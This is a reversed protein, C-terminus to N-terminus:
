QNLHTYRQSADKKDSEKIVSSVSNPMKRVDMSGHLDELHM